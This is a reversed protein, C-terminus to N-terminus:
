VAVFQDGTAGAPPGVAASRTIMLVTTKGLTYGDMVALTMTRLTTMVDARRLTLELMVMVTSSYRVMVPASELIIPNPWTLTPDGEVRAVATVTPSLAMPIVNSGCNIANALLTVSVLTTKLCAVVSLSASVM